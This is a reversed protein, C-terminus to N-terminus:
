NGASQALSEDADLVQRVKRMLGHPTFPKELFAADHALVRHRLVADETYGSMYLVRVAPRLEGIARAVERGSMDPMVMDTLVLDVDTTRAIEVADEGRATAHVEYGANRLARAAVTRLANDDEVILVCENGGRPADRATAEAVLAGDARPLYVKITTGHGVESYIGIDGKAQKVIGYVTALGLGTGKGAGKTTFFPEFARQVTDPSMGSGTDSVALLVYHGRDVGLRRQPDHHDSLEVNATEITLRGGDPMADRANVALNLLVQEVQGQDAMVLDVPSTMCVLDVHEGILRKLMKEVGAVVENVDLLRPQVMQKRSFALLQGTLAAARDAADRIEMIDAVLPNSPELEELTMESYSKIVTLLNNFDHAVGGALQGVAEMKQSQALQHELQHRDTADQMMAGVGLLEGTAGRVPYFSASWHRTGSGVKRTMEVDNVAQGTTLVRSVPLDVLAAVDPVIESLRRGVHDDVPVGTMRAFAKNVRGLRMERDFMATGMPASDLVVRLMSLADGKERAAREAQERAREAISRAEHEAVARERASREELALTVSAREADQRHRDADDVVTATWMIVLGFALMTTVAVIASLTAADYATPWSVFARLAGLVFPVGFAFPLLRRALVGGAQRSLVRGVFGTDARLALGAATLILVLVATPLAIQFGQGVGTLPIAGYVYGLISTLGIAAVTLFLVQSPRFGSGPEVDLLLIAPGLLAFCTASVASMRGPHATIGADSSADFVLRDIGLNVGFVYQALTLFGIATVVIALLVAISWRSKGPYAPTRTILLLSTAACLIGLATNAKITVDAFGLTQLPRVDIAWGVLVLAAAIAVVASAVAAGATATLPRPDGTFEFPSRTASATM